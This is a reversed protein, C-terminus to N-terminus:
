KKKMMEKVADYFEPSEGVVIKAINGEPDVIIKTPFGSINYITTLDKGKETNNIVNIWNIGHEEVAAKWKEETDNCDVGVIELKGQYKKYMAQMDPIGKICWGCWSGWFDLVVYKGKLSSLTFDNGKIDKLTFDPAPKGEQILEAAKRKAAMKEYMEVLDEYMAKMSGNKVEESFKGIYDEGFKPRNLYILFLSAESDLHAAVYKELEKQYQEDAGKLEEFKKELEERAAQKSMLEMYQGQLEARLSDAAQLQANAANYAEYFKSGTVEYKDFDGKVTLEQRPSMLVLIPRMRFAKMSGDAQKRPFNYIQVLGAVSDPYEYAFVGNPAAITDRVGNYMVLVSDEAVMGSLEAKLTSTTPESGCSAMLM